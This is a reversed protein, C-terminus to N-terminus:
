KTRELYKAPTEGPLRQPARQSLSPVSEPKRKMNQNISQISEMMTKRYPATMAPSGIFEAKNTDDFLAYPSKGAKRYEEVKKDVFNSFAMFKAAGESDEVGMFLNSKDIQHKVGDLLRTKAHGLTQGDPTLMDQWEKRLHLLAPYDIGRMRTASDTYIRDLDTIDKITGTRIKNLTEAVLRPDDVFAKM